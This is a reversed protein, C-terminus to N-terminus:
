NRSSLISAQATYNEFINGNLIPVTDSVNFECALKVDGPFGMDNLEVGSVSNSIRDYLNEEANKFAELAMEAEQSLSGNLFSIVAGAGIYDEIAFRISGDKWKEGAPIVTIREGLKVAAESVARCNRLCATITKVTKSGSVFSLESGNPSPLVLKTGTIIKQLSGPSLSLVDSSRSSSALEANVQKSYLLATEDTYRYPYIVAGKSLAIDVSTSFSLVDVIIIVDSKQKYQEIGKIGWECNIYRNSSKIKSNEIQDM